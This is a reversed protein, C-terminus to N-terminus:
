KSAVVSWEGLVASRSGENNERKKELSKVRKVLLGVGLPGLATCLVTAWIVILFIDDNDQGAIPDNTTFTGNASAISAILFGIEGRAVMALGLIFSPYLSIPPKPAAATSPEQDPNLKDPQESKTETKSSDFNSDNPVTAPSIEDELNAQVPSRSPSTERPSAPPTPLSPKGVQEQRGLAGGQEAPKQLGKPKSAKTKIKNFMELKKFPIDAMLIWIGTALKSFFMLISYVIGRWLVHTGFMRKIPVSFGISAFFFPILIREVVPLYYKEYVETSKLPSFGGEVEQTEDWWTVLTGAIFAGFLVSAGAYGAVAVSGILVLTQIAWLMGDGRLKEPLRRQGILRKGAWGVVVAAIIIGLSAGIPRLVSGISVGERGLGSVVQVMVLGVVDDMM